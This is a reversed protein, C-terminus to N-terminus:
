GQHTYGVQGSESGLQVLRRRMEEARQREGNKLKAFTCKEVWNGVGHQLVNRARLSSGKTHGVSGHLTLREKTASYVGRHLINNNYFVIDGPELKVVLQGPLMKEFPHANREFDTRARRHSGPVVVLSDDEWLAFNYQAHYAPKRLREIEEYPMAEAPIDDRHWMLEFDRDPRVLLNFLEMVLHDDGCQLLQKAIGLIAESFYLETFIQHGPLAPNMLHQVGWIGHERGESATWPPFQKGVTRVHPWGGGRALSTAKSSAARLQELKDRDIISKIVVFGDLDLQRLYPSAPKQAPPDMVMARRKARSAPSPKLTLSTTPLHTPYRTHPRCFCAETPWRVAFGRVTKQVDLDGPDNDFLPKDLRRESVQEVEFGQERALDFFREDLAKKWPRYSTFFVYAVSDRTKRLTERITKVMAGHESHRFLLDALVLVDFRETPTADQSTVSDSTPASAPAESALGPRLRALLPVADAGWVFGMADVTGSISGRPEVTEDCTDINKQMVTVIEPDPYDTMVVKRAGLIAAVLSPLGAAAGLELVTRGRVRAPDDEFFDAVMKSGNWVIHAETVSSGVLRLTIHKGSQMTFIEEHHPPTPPYFGEPNDMLSGFGYDIEEAM